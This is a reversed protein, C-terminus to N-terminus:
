QKFRYNLWRWSFEADLNNMITTKLTPLSLFMKSFGSITEV